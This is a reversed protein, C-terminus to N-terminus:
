MEFVFGSHLQKVRNPYLLQMQKIANHSTCHGPYLYIEPFAAFLNRTITEIQKDSEQNEALHMGGIFAVPTQNTFKQCSEVINQVGCHSCSSIIVLGKPTTIAVALEHTFDDKYLKEDRGSMTLHKNALPKHHYSVFKNVLAIQDAIFRNRTIPFYNINGCLLTPDTSLNQPLIPNKLSIFKHDLAFPHCYIRANPFSDVFHNLAGTHDNHHHSLVISHPEDSLGLMELNQITKESRGVDVIFHTQDIQVMFALAHEAHLNPLSQNPSNDIITTIRVM